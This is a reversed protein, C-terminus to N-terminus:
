RVVSYGIDVHVNHLAQGLLKLDRQGLITVEAALSEYTMRFLLHQGFKIVSQILAILDFEVELPLQKRMVAAENTPTVVRRKEELYELLASPPPVQVRSWLVVLIAFDDHLM